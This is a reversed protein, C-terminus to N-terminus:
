VTAKTLMPVWERNGGSCKGQGSIRALDADRGVRALPRREGIDFSLNFISGSAFVSISIKIQVISMEVEM